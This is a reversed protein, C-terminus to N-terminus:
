TSQVIRLSDALLAKEEVGGLQQQLGWMCIVDWSGSEQSLEPTTNSSMCVHMLRYLWMSLPYHSVYIIDRCLIPVTICVFLLFLFIEHRECQKSIHSFVIIPFVTIATM